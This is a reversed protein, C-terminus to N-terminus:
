IASPVVHPLESPAPTTSSGLAPEYAAQTRDIAMLIGISFCTLLWGTGGSSVLPLAIGKTPGLGTVVILNIIAQFGITSVIGLAVLRLMTSRERIVIACGMCIIVVFLVIIIAAGAIGLEECIIAFLFDTTDEPLYGFKQLGFGLGRGFGEGGAVALMSQIM